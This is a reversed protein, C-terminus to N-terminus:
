LSGRTEMDFTAALLTVPRPAQARLCLRSDTSWAGPFGFQQEDYAAYVTDPAVAKGGQVAPLSRMTTFDAGYKLGQFHANAMIVGLQAIRKPQNLATGSEAAYALKTSQFDADYGLGVVANTVLAALGTIQGGTVTFTGLDRGHPTGDANLFPHITNWGWVVVQQGELQSLGTITITEAGSYVTHADACRGEPGGWCQDERAWKEFYRVVSGNINRRVVYYVLDEIESPLVVVAEVFGSTSATVWCMEEEIPDFVLIAVTGDAMVAHIRTDPKRQVAISVFGGPAIAIDPIFKTLDSATYDMMFFNPSYSLQYVRRRSKDVFVGNTDIKIAQIPSSGQTSADKLIFDTPTLPSDFSSSRASKEAGQTGILLRQLGLLWPITDVPGSGITRSIPGSDGTVTDDDSEFADSVSGNIADTGAFWLRGEFLSVASPFGRQTSWKGESWDQTATTSGLGQLVSTSGAPNPETLVIASASLTSAVATIRCVGTISGTTIDLSGVPAGATYDVDCGIRYYIIQNDLGDLYTTTVNTDLWSQGPVNVWAGPSGVSRQLVLTADGAATITIALSRVAGIGIVKVAASFQNTGGITVAAHQGVSALRFLAGVHGARFLRDSATLTIAGTTASPTITIPGTNEILFPGDEPQYLVISWSRPGTSGYTRMIKQPPLGGCAIFLVDGSQDFRVFPIPSLLSTPFLTPLRVEGAAEVAISKVRGPTNVANRFEVWFSAGTPVFSLSHTGVGLRRDVLYSDDGSANGVRINVPAQSIVIRLGHEVNQDALAVTVQQREIAANSGTGTLEMFSGTAWASLAGAQDANTWGSLDTAFTGNTITTSVAPRTLVTDPPNGATGPMIIRLISNTLEVIAVDTSSFIFPIPQCPQNDRTTATYGWGPRLMMSGLVRPMWNDQIQASLAARKLDIRALGLASLLGRNFGFLSSTVAGM